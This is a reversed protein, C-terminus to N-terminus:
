MSLRIMSLAKWRATLRQWEHRDVFAACGLTAKGARMTRAVRRIRQMYLQSVNVEGRLTVMANLAPDLM